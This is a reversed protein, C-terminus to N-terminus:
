GVRSVHVTTDVHKVLIAVVGGIILEEDGMTGCYTHSVKAWNEIINVM